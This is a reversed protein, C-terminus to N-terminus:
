PTIPYKRVHELFAGVYRKSPMTHGCGEILVIDAGEIKAALEEGMSAPVMIDAMGHIVRTPVRIDKARQRSDFGDVAAMQSAFKELSSTVRGPTDVGKEEKIKFEEETMCYSQMIKFLCEIDGGSRVSELMANMAYSSRSPRRMYTSVLTLSAVREPHRLAVEQAVNGGMSWGLVHAKTIELRDLLSVVDDALTGMDFPEDPCETLGSNRNDFTIVKFRDSLLPVMGYWFSVDGSLGTILIVPEGNGSIEYNMKLQGITEKPM